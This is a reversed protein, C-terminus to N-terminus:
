KAKLEDLHIMLDVIERERNDFANQMEIIRKVAEENAKSLTDIQRQTLKILEAKTAEDM